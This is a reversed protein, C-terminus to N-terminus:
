KLFLFFFYFLVSTVKTKRNEYFYFVSFHTKLYEKNVNIQKLTPSKCVKWNFLKKKKLSLYLFYDSNQCNECDSSLWMRYIYVTNLFFIQM